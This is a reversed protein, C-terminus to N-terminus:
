KKRWFVSVIESIAFALGLVIAMQIIHSGGIPLVTKSFPELAALLVLLAGALRIINTMAVSWQPIQASM